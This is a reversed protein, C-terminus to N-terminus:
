GVAHQHPQMGGLLGSEVQREGRGQRGDGVTRLLRGTQGQSVLHRHGHDSAAGPVVEEEGVGDVDGARTGGRVLERRGREGVRLVLVRREEHGEHHHM